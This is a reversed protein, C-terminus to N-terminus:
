PAACSSSTRRWRLNAIRMPVAYDRGSGGILEDGANMNALEAQFADHRLLETRYVLRPARCQPELGDIWLTPNARLQPCTLPCRNRVNLAVACLRQAGARQAPALASLDTALRSSLSQSTAFDVRDVLAGNPTCRMILCMSIIQPGAGQHHPSGCRGWGYRLSLIAKVFLAFWNAQIHRPINRSAVFQNM